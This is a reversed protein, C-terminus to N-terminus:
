ECMMAGVRDGNADVCFSMTICTQTLNMCSLSGEGREIGIRGCMLM